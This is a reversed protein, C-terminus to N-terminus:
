YRWKQLKPDFWKSTLIDNGFCSSFIENSLDEPVYELDVGDVNSEGVQKVFSLFLGVDNIVDSINEEIENRM